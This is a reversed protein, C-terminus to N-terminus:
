NGGGGTARIRYTGDDMRDRHAAHCASCLQTLSGASAKVEDWNGGAVSQEMTTVLNVSDGAFKVADATNRGKFFTQVDTYAKKMVALQAQMAAADPKELGGRITTNAGNIAKMWNSFEIEAPSMPPPLRRAIDVLGMTIVANAFVASKGQYKAIVDPELDLTYNKARKAVEAPNFPFVEGQVTVYSNIEPATNLNPALVIVNLGTSKNKDQDVTFVTKSLVADVSAMMSVNAGMQAFPDRLITSATM